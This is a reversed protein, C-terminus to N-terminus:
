TYFVSCPIVCYASRMADPNIEYMTRLEKDIIREYAAEPLNISLAGDITVEDILWKKFQERTM